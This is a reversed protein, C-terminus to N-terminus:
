SIVLNITPRFTNYISSKASLLDTYKDSQNNSQASFTKALLYSGILSVSDVDYGIKM